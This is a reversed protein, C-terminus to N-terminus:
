RSCKLSSYKAIRVIGAPRFLGPETLKLTATVLNVEFDGDPWFLDSLM